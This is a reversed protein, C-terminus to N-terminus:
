VVLINIIGFHQLTMLLALICIFVSIPAFILRSADSSSLSLYAFGFAVSWEILIVLIKLILETTMEYGGGM